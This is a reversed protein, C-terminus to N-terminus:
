KIFTILSITTCCDVCGFKMANGNWVKLADGGGWLRM